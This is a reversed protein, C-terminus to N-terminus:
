LFAVQYGAKVVAFASIISVVTKGSGVDGQLVRLMKKESTIDNVIEACVKNQSSTLSFPIKKRIEALTEEEIIKPKKILKKIRKKIESFILLNSFIEDFALRKYYKSQKDVDHINNPNHLNYIAEYWTPWGMENLFDKRHWEEIEKLKGIEEKYIKQITKSSIGVISPYKAMIKKIDKEKDISQVYDPNTIQFKNKYFGVKGSIMVEEDLPLIQKIYTERSNFFIIDITGFEDKCVVKNPLNRFRPFYHKAPRVFITSIKGVELHDLKPCFSRDIAGTPLNLFLDIKNEIGRDSLKKSIVPGVGKIKNISSFLDNFNM